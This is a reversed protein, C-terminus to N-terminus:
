RRSELLSPRRRLRAGPTWVLQGRELEHAVGQVQRFTDLERHVKDLGLLLRHAALDQPEAM